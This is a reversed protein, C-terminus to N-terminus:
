SREDTPTVDKVEIKTVFPKGDDEFDREGKRIRRLCHDNLRDFLPRLNRGEVTLKWSTLGVFLVWFKGPTFEAEVSIYVYQLAIVPEAGGREVDLARCGKAWVMGCRGVNQKLASDQEDEEVDPKSKTRHLIDNLGDDPM